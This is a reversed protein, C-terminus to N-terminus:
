PRLVQRMPSGSQHSPRISSEALISELNAHGLADMPHWDFSTRGAAGAPTEVVLFRVERGNGDKWIVPCSSGGPRDCPPTSDWIRMIWRMSTGDQGIVQALVEDALAEGQETGLNRRLRFKLGGIVYGVCEDLNDVQPAGTPGTLVTLLSLQPRTRRERFGAELGLLVAMASNAAEIFFMEDVVLRPWPASDIALSKQRVPTQTGPAIQASRRPAYGAAILVAASRSQPVQMADLVALLRDRSPTRLGAEYKRIAEASMCATSALQEQTLTARLREARVM